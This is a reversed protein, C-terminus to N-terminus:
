LIEVTMRHPPKRRIARVSVVKTEENVDYFVRYEGVRLEWIPPDTEFPPVVGPLRKRRRNPTAPRHLLHKEIAELIPRGHFSPLQALEELAAPVIEVRYV